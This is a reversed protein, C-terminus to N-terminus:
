ASEAEGVGLAPVLSTASKEGTEMCGHGNYDLKRLVVSYMDMKGGIGDM